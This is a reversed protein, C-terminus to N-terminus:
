GGGGGPTVLGLLELRAIRERAEPADVGLAAAVEEETDAGDRIVQLARAEEEGPVPGAAVGGLDEVLDAASRVLRAGDRLLQLPGDSRSADPWGPVAFVERGLELAHRATIMAGSRRRCEVVVTGVALAALIRNRRPFHHSRPETGPAFESVLAGEEGVRAHLERNEAPYPVDVGCGLVAVTGGEGALSGRHAAADIGRALGSVTSWGEEALRRATRETWLEVPGSSERTGVIAVAPEALQTVSGRVFLVEPP